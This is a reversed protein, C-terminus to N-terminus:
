SQVQAQHNVVIFHRGFVYGHDSQQDDRLVKNLDDCEQRSLHVTSGAPAAKLKAIVAETEAPLSM